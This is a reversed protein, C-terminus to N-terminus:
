QEAYTVAQDHDFEAIRELPAARVAAADMSALDLSSVGTEEDATVRELAAIRLYFLVAVTAFLGTIAGITAGVVAPSFSGVALDPATPLQRSSGIWALLDNTATLGGELLYVYTALGAALWSGALVNWGDRTVTATSVQDGARKSLVAFKTVGLSIFYLVVLPVGWMFQTFPDPPSFLAGFVFIGVVAYRWNNRFTEYPVVGTRASATMALPLQAALGFSLSLFFVFETWMVISWTPTFGANIAVSALFKFMVPFFIFYAYTVGGVFLLAVAFGFAVLKWRPVSGSPWYGRRKLGSRGYWITFPLAFITGVVLGIKTQLLIINFPDTVVIETAQATELSMQNYVLDTQLQDWIVRRLLFFTLLFATAFVLFVRKLRGQANSLVSMLTQRGSALTRMTDDDLTRAM